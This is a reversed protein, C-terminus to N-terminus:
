EMGYYERGAYLIPHQLVKLSVNKKLWHDSRNLMKDLQSVQIEFKVDKLDLPEWDAFDAPQKQEWERYLEKVQKRQEASELRLLVYDMDASNDGLKWEFSISRWPRWGAKLALEMGQMVQRYVSLGRRTQYEYEVEHFEDKGTEANRLPVFLSMRVPTADEPDDELWNAARVYCLALPRLEQHHNFHEFIAQKVKSERGTDIANLIPEAEEASMNEKVWWYFEPAGYKEDGNLRRVIKNLLEM